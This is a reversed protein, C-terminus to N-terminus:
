IQIIKDNVKIQLNKIDMSMTPEYEKGIDKSMLKHNISAKGVGYRRIFIIKYSKLDKSFNM